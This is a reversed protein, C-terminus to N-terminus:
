KGCFSDRRGKVTAGPHRQAPFRPLHARTLSVGTPGPRPTLLSEFQNRSLPLEIFETTNEPVRFEATEELRCLDTVEDVPQSM